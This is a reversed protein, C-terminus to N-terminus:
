DLTVSPAPAAITIRALAPVYGPKTAILLYKGEPFAYSVQGNAATVGLSTAVDALVAAWNAASSDGKIAQRIKALKLAQAQAFDVAWVAVGSVPTTSGKVNVTVTVTEGPAASQPASIALFERVILHSFGPLYGEKLAVLWNNAPATFTYTLKGADDTQGLKTGNANLIAAYAEATANATVPHNLDKIAKKMANVNDKNVAWVGAASVPTQDLRAFVTLQMPEGVRVVAPQVIALLSKPGQAKGVPHSPGGAAMISLPTVVLLLLGMVSALIIQWTKMYIEEKKQSSTSKGEVAPGPLSRHELDETM